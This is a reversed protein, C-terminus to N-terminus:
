SEKEELPLRISIRTGHGNVIPSEARILGGHADVIGKAIALGLGTGEGGDGDQERGRAFKEFVKPLLAPPIGPGDDTVSLLIGEGDRRAELTVQADPGAYRVANGVINTLAQDLLSPDALVFPLEPEVDLRFGQTAGRRKALAVVRDFAETVDVWDRRLELAGAEVRTMSLLNRVMRDLHEAEDKVQDLLDQRAREPMRPGYDILSTAAGLISALPTRFDHSISTLLTNRVRETETATNAATIERALRAREVAAATLEAVTEALTRTESDLTDGDLAIGMVGVRGHSSRLPLFFWRASPLTGTGAGAVEDKDYAWRAASASATDLEDEPPWSAALDLTDGQPLLIAAPRHLYGNLEVVAGEAVANPDPFSSLRRTFEYLRRAARARNVAAAAQERARGALASTLVAAGLFTFLALLEHPRAVTFTYVPDIFFFNYGLFSLISSVVAPWIGFRVAAFLVAVLFIMSVNPLSVVSTMALGVVIAGAVALTSWLFPVWSQKVKMRPLSNWWRMRRAQGDRATVVHIAIDEAHHVLQHPLSHGFLESWWGGRSRGIVIQTVNEFRAFRLLEQVMDSAVLTKTEEAGLRVALQLTADVRQREESGLILGPREVTVALWPAGIADALRKAHRVVAQSTEDTGVCVLIREGAAWPGEVGGGQMRELLDSDIREAARRLALERLAVLNNPRFFNDVARAATDQIYVKGEALRRLLEDPPLDVLVLEDAEDFVRDPVTERVRVRTIRQVVDNLSELHQINLTTWVDIGAALLEEIDQWRKPHRSGPANTHAYEDVLTLQPRRRLAADLDFEQVMRGRYPVSLRPLIEFGQVLEETEQRGHTEVLGVVVDKGDERATRGALLMAYTKGVGPAAGLFIKLRGRGERNALTLLADPSARPTETLAM